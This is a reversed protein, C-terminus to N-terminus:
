VIVFEVIKECDLPGNAIRKFNVKQGLKGDFTKRWDHSLAKFTKKIM